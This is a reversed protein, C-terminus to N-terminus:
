WREKISCGPARRGSFPPRFRPSPHDRAVPSLTDSAPEAGGKARAIARRASIVLEEPRPNTGAGTKVILLQAALVRVLFRTGASDPAPSTEAGTSISHVWLTGAAVTVSARARSARRPLGALLSEKVPSRAFPTTPAPSSRTQCLGYVGRVQAARCVADGLQLLLRLRLTLLDSGDCPALARGFAPATGTAVTGVRVGAAQLRTLVRDPLPWPSGAMLDFAVSAANLPTPSCVARSLSLAWPQAVPFSHTALM